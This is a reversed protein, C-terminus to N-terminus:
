DELRRENCLFENCVKSTTCGDSTGGEFLRLVMERLTGDDCTAGFVRECGSFCRRRRGVM